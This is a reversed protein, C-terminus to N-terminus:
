GKLPMFGKMWEGFAKPNRSQILVIGPGKFRCVLGEGSLYSSVWGSSAKEMKYDMFDPWAVLHNNDIIQEDGEPINIAHIAGLANLFVTGQGSIKVIFLGEGSFFGQLLNQTKTSVDLGSTAALFGGKQVLLNYSGDLTVDVIDGPTVPALLVEGAGRKATLKQFFFNEGSLMRGIGGIVGGKLSSDVDITNSMSVMADPEAFLIEGGNLQAEVM